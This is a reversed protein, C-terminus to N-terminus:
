SSGTLHKYLAHLHPETFADPVYLGPEARYVVTENPSPSIGAAAAAQATMIPLSENEAMDKLHFIAWSRPQTNDGETQVDLCSVGAALFAQRHDRTLQAISLARGAALAAVNDAHRVAAIRKAAKLMYDLCNSIRFRGGAFGDRSPLTGHLRHANEYAADPSLLHHALANYLLTNNSPQPAPAAESTPM